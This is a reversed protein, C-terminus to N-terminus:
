INPISLEKRLEKEMVLLGVMVPYQTGLIKAQEEYNRMNRLAKKYGDVVPLQQWQSVMAVCRNALRFENDPISGQGSAM